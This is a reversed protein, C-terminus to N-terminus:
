VMDIFAKSEGGLLGNLSKATYSRPGGRISACYMAIADLVGRLQTTTRHWNGLDESVKRISDVDSATWVFSDQAAYRTGGYAAELRLVDSLLTSSVRIRVYEYNDQAVVAIRGKDIILQIPRNYSGLGSRNRRRSEM